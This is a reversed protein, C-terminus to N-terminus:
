EDDLEIHANRLKRLTNKGLLDADEAIESDDFHGSPALRQEVREAVYAAYEAARVADANAAEKAHDDSLVEWEHQTVYWVGNEDEEREEYQVSLMWYAPGAYQDGFRSLLEAEVDKVDARQGDYLAGNVGAMQAFVPLPCLNFGTEADRIVIFDYYPATFADGAYEGFKNLFFFKEGTNLGAAFAANKDAYREADESSEYKILTADFTNM